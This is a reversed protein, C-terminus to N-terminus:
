GPNIPIIKGAYGFQKNFLITRGGVKKEDASAGIVAISEPRLLSKISAKEM